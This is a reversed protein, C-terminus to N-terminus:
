RPPSIESPLLGATAAAAVAAARTNVGLKAFAKAVHNQATRRSIFLAEGIERDGRGAAVLRLVELERDTLGYRNVPVSARDETAVPAPPAEDLTPVDPVFEARAEAVAEEPSLARGAERAAAFATEGLVARAMTMARELDPRAFPPLPTGIKERLAAATGALQAARGAQGQSAAVGALGELCSAVLWRPGATSATALADVLLARATEVDGAALAVRALTAQAEAIASANGLHRLTTLGEECLARARVLDARRYAALGLNHLSYGIGLPDGLERFHALSAECRARTEDDDGRDRAIDGLSLLATAIARRDQLARGVALGEESLTRAQDFQGQERIVLALRYLAYAVGVQDGLNRYLALCEGFLATAQDYDGESRAMLGRNVLAEALGDAQGLQRYLALSEEFLATARPFDCHAHALWGAAALAKARVGPAVERDSAAALALLRELWGRGEWVHGHIEWFRVLASALRLGVEVEQM